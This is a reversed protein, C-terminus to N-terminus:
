SYCNVSEFRISSLNENFGYLFDDAITQLQDASKNSGLDIKPAGGEWVIEGNETIIHGRNKEVSHMTLLMDEVSKAMEYKLLAKIWLPGVKTLDKSLQTVDRDTRTFYKPIDKKVKNTEPDLKSYSQSEEERVIYL